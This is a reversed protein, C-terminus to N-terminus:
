LNDIINKLFAFDHELTERTPRVGCFDELGLWGSYEAEVLAGFLNNWNVVGDELPSWRPEWVGGGEPITFAANKIHVHKLYPGLLQIGMRYDEFGENVMNGADHLVGIHEPDFRSVMRHALAASCTITKHHIEVIARIGHQKALEQVDTLFDVGQDFKSAYDDGPGWQGPNVRVQTAGCTRAFQMATEVKDLEGVHIYTGLGPIELGANAAIDRAQAAAETDLPFTCLNNGWFSPAESKREEPIDTVRWEAGDYGIDKLAAATEEPTFDPTMVTFVSLKFM